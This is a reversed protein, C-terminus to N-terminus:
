TSGKGAALHELVVHVVIPHVTSIIDMDKSRLVGRWVETADWADLAAFRSRMTLAFETLNEGDTSITAGCEECARHLKCYVCKFVSSKDAALFEDLVAQANGSNFELARADDYVQELTTIGAPALRTCPVDDWSARAAKRDRIEREHKARETSRQFARHKWSRKAM